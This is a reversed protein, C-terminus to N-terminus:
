AEGVRSRNNALENVSMTRHELEREMRSLAQRESCDGRIGPISSPPM